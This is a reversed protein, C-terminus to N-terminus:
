EKIPITIKFTTGNNNEVELTGLLQETLMKVLSLGMSTSDEMKFGEPLGQGNDSVLLTAFNNKKKATITLEGGTEKDFAYKLSNTLLENIILAISSADKPSVIIKDFDTKIKVKQNDEIFSDTISRSIQKLYHDLEVSESVGTENLLSYMQALTGVRLELGELIKDVEPKDLKARELYILSKILNFSNKVRHLLERHLLEKETAANKLVQEAKKRDTIDYIYGWFEKLNGDNDFLGIINELTYIKNGKKTILEGEYNILKREKRLLNLFDIRIQPNTYHNIPNTNLMEDISDYEMMRVYAQNCEIIKGQPTSLFVGSLDEEFFRRYNEESLKLKEEALKRQDIDIHSGSIRVARGHEDKEAVKGRGLIWIYNGDKKKMRFEIAFPHLKEIAELNAREAKEVDDPHILNRWNEFSPLFEDPQYGLMTYYRPSFYVANTRLNWDWIGDSTGELAYRLRQESHKLNEEVKIRDDIDLHIGLARLPNGKKDRESIKGWNLIWKYNGDKCKLRHQVKFYETLGHEHKKAENIVLDLDDPHIHSKWFDLNNELESQDYGLMKAWQDNRNVIGTIFDQDWLGIQAGQIALNFTKENERLKQESLLLRNQEAFLKLAIKISSILAAQEGNKLVYGYSTIKVIKETIEKEIHDSIFLIPIKHQNLIIQATEIGDNKKGLDINLLILDIRPNENTIKVAEDGDYAIIVDYGSQKLIKAEATETSAQKEVLLISKKDETNM